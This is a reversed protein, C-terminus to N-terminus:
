LEFRITRPAQGARLQLTRTREVMGGRGVGLRYNGPDLELTQPATVGITRGNLYIPASSAGSIEVRVRIKTVEPHLDANTTPTSARASMASSMVSAMPATRRAGGGGPRRLGSSTMSDMAVSEPPAAPTSTGRASTNPAPTTVPATMASPTPPAARSDAASEAGARERRRVRTSRTPADVAFDPEPNPVADGGVFERGPLAPLLPLEAPPAEVETTAALEQQREAARQSRRILVVTILGAISLALAAAALRVRWPSRPRATLLTPQDRASQARALVDPIDHPTIAGYRATTNVAPKAEVPAGGTPPPTSPSMAPPPTSPPPMQRSEVGERRGAGELERPDVGSRTVPFHTAISRRIADVDVEAAGTRSAAPGGIKDFEEDLRVGTSSATHSMVDRVAQGLSQRHIPLFRMKALAVILEEATAFRAGM